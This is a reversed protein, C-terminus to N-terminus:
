GCGTAEYDVAGFHLLLRQGGSLPPPTSAHASVLVGPLFGTDGIGSAQTEPAFPVRIQRDWTVEEPATHRADADIAFDWAGDLVGM